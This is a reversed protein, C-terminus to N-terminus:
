MVNKSTLVRALFAMICYNLLHDVFNLNIEIYKTGEFVKLPHLDTPVRTNIKFTKQANWILRALNVPLAVQVYFVILIYIYINSVINKVHSWLEDIM